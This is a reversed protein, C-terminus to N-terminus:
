KCGDMMAVLKFISQLLIEEKPPNTPYIGTLRSPKMQESKRWRYFYIRCLRVANAVDKTSMFEHIIASNSSFGPTQVHDAFEKSSGVEWPFQDHEVSDDAQMLFRLDYM